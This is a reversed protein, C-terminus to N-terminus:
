LGELEKINDLLTKGHEVFNIPIAEMVQYKIINREKYTEMKARCKFIYTKFYRSDIWNEFALEENEKMSNLENANKGIITNGTDNFCQFWMSDTHDSINMGFIYRYEVHDYSRSCKECRYSNEGDEIVKKNCGENPCAAYYMNEKKIFVVTGRTVFYEAKENNGINENIIQSMTKEPSNISGTSYSSGSFLKTEIKLGGNAVWKRISNTEPINPDILLKSTGYMSLSRGQFDSVRTNKCVIITGIDIHRLENVQQGWTTLRVEFESEDVIILDRKDIMKQNKTMVQTTESIEKIAAVVDVTNDKEYNVLDSIKVPNIKIKIPMVSNNAPEIITGAEITIEYDNQVNSFQKKAINVKGKSIYYVKNLELLNMYEDAQQNFATARIEGTDDMLTVNFLKGSGRSNTWTKLDSKQVVMAKLKWKNHYPSINDISCIGEDSNKNSSRQPTINNNHSSNIGFNSPVPPRLQPPQPPQQPQIPNPRSIGTRSRETDDSLHGHGYLELPVDKVLEFGLIVLYKSTNKSAQLPISNSLNYNTLKIIMGRDLKKGNCVTKILHEPIIGQILEFGDSLGIKYRSGGQEGAGPNVRVLQLVPNKPRSSENEDLMGRICGLSIISGVNTKSM